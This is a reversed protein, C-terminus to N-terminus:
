PTAQQTPSLQTIQDIARLIEEEAERRNRVPKLLIKTRPDIAEDRSSGFDKKAILTEILADKLEDENDVVSGFSSSVDSDYGSENATALIWKFGNMRFVRADGSLIATINSDVADNIDKIKTFGISRKDRSNAWQQAIGTFVRFRVNAKSVIDIVSNMVVANWFINTRADQLASFSTVSFIDVQPIYNEVQPIYIFSKKWTSSFKLSGDDNRQQIRQINHKPIEDTKPYVFYITGDEDTRMQAIDKEVYTNLLPSFLKGNQQKLIHEPIEPTYVHYFLLEGDDNKYSRVYFANVNRKLLPSYYEYVRILGLSALDFSFIGIEQATFELEKKQDLDMQIQPITQNKLDEVNQSLEDNMIFSRVENVVEDKNTTGYWSTDRLRSEINADTFYGQKVRYTNSNPKTDIDNMQEEIFDLFDYYNDYMFVQGRRNRLKHKFTAM